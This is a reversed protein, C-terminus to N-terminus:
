FVNEIEDIFHEKFFQQIRSSVEKETVFKLCEEALLKAESYNISRIIKKIHPITSASVSLSDLGMGVLLPTALVDAAMEGCMSVKASGQKGSQIIKYLTRIVAPHFEQYLSSVIENGRDVALLYQILDNTGISIFDVEASFEEAMVAASPVEIMIGININVDFEKGEAELEKKCCEVIAKSRRIEQISTIMPLMFKINKHISARLLARIQTKLLPENDLLFRIGRWGLFPNPEKVDVPFVKDGGIDFIRIVVMNPYFKEALDKYVRFQKEESPFEDSLDFVQETRVLGIGEAGNKFIYDLEEVIDLNARLIIKRGDKTIAPKDIMKELNSDFAALRKIKEEYFSLQEDTPDLIVEGHVGDIIILDNNKIKTTADHIGLVAPLNLSRAVIAAHSTLGGINTIYGKVNERSFLVTDAPTISNTVVIVDKDIKSVWKKKKINRIIRNKIDEIDQSREKMYTQNSLALIEVYKSFEDDVIFIPSRKERKIRTKINDILIPDDLIMLQAEFISARNEGMKDVALTFIKNLEKKSKSLSAEFNELAEEVNTIVDDDIKEIEKTYIFAKGISIGPAAAIGKLINDSM